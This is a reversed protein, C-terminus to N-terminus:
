KNGTIHYRSGTNISDKYTGTAGLKVLQTSAHRQWQVRYRVQNSLTLIHFWIHRNSVTKM